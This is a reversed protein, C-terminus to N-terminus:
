FSHHPITWGKYVFENMHDVHISRMRQYVIKDDDAMAQLDGDYISDDLLYWLDVELHPHCNKILQLQDIHLMSLTQLNILYSCDIAQQFYAGFQLSTVSIPLLGTIPQNFSSGFGLSIISPPLSGPIIPQNFINGFTLETISNPLFDCEIPANDDHYIDDDVDKTPPYSTCPVSCDDLSLSLLASPLFGQGISHKISYDWGLDLFKLGPPLVGPPIPRDVITGFSLRTLSSPLTFGERPSYGLRLSTLSSPFARPDIVSQIHLSRLSQPLWGVEFYPNKGYFNMDTLNTPLAQFSSLVHKTGQTTYNAFFILEALGHPLVFPSAHYQGFSIKKLSTPLAGGPIPYNFNDGFELHTISEPLYGLEIPRNFYKNLVLLTLSPPLQPLPDVENTTAPPYSPSGYEFVRYFRLTKLTAPLAGPEIKRRYVHGLYLSDLAPPLVGVTINKDFNWGFSLNTISEPLTGPILTQNFNQGFTLTTLWDGAGDVVGAGDLISSHTLEVNDNNDSWTTYFRSQKFLQNSSLNQLPYDLNRLSNM